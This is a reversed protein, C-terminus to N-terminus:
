QRGGPLRERGLRLDRGALREQLALDLQQLRLDDNKEAADGRTAQEADFFAYGLQTATQEDVGRGVARPNRGHDREMRGEQEALGALLAEGPAIQQGQPLFELFGFAENIGIRM